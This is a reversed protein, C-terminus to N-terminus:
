TIRNETAEAENLAPYTIPPSSASIVSQGNIAETCVWPWNWKQPPTRNSEVWTRVAACQTSPSEGYTLYKIGEYNRSQLLYFSLRLKWKLNNSLKTFKTYLRNSSILSINWIWEEYINDVHLIIVTLYHICNQISRYHTWHSSMMRHLNIWNM